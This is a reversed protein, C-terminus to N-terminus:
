EYVQSISLIIDDDEVTYVSDIDYVRDCDGEELVIDKSLDDESLGQLFELLRKGTM